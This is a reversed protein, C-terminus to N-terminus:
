ISGRLYQGMARPFCSHRAKGDSTQGAGGLGAPSQRHERGAFVNTPQDAAMKGAIEVARRDVEIGRDYEGLNIYGGALDYLFDLLPAAATLDGRGGAAYEAELFPLAKVAADVQQRIDHQGFYLWSLDRWSASFGQQAPKSKPTRAVVKEYDAIGLRYEAIAEPGRGMAQEGAAMGRHAEARAMWDEDSV